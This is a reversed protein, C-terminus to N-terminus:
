GRTNLKAKRAANLASNRSHLENRSMKKKPKNKINCVQILTMLRNIHWKQFEVPIGLTIMWYYIIESTVIERSKANSRDTITTATMPDYIYDEIKKLTSQTFAQYVNPDVKPTLTMCKIYDLMEEETKKERGLFPKHWKSEWKSISVLSHELSLKQAQINIFEQRESDWLETNPIEIELM